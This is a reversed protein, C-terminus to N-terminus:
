GHSVPYAKVEVLVDIRRNGLGQATVADVHSRGRFCPEAGAVVLVM